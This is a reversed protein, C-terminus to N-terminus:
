TCLELTSHDIEHKVEMSLFLSIGLDQRREHYAAFCHGACSLQRLELHHAQRGAFSINRIGVASTGTVLRLIWLSLTSPSLHRNIIHSGAKVIEAELLAGYFAAGSSSGVLLGEKKALLRLQM